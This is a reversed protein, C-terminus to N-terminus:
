LFWLDFKRIINLRGLNVDVVQGFDWIWPQIGTAITAIRPYTIIISVKTCAFVAIACHAGISYTYTIFSCLVNTRVEGSNFLLFPLYMNHSIMIFIGTM